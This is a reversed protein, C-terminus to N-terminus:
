KRVTFSYTWSQKDGDAAVISAHVTYRGAGLGHRLAVRLRKVNRPDRGGSGSSVKGHPGTVKVKGSRIQGSFTLVVSRPAHSLKANKKPSTSVLEEHALADSAGVAFVLALAIFVATIRLM